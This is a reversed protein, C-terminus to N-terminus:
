RRVIRPHRRRALLALCALAFLPAAGPEPAALSGTGPTPVDLLEFDVANQDTDLNAFRRALSQGAIGRPAPSGEGAFVDSATFVGYGLADLVSADPARLRVSDPGNQLDFNLILDANAIATTGDAFGDAIVFFGSPGIAGSLALVPTTGGDAGNVGELVYGQLASGAPGYLEVFSGGDDIGIADFLVESILIPAAESPQAGCLLLALALWRLFRDRM